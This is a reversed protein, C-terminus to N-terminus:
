GFFAAIAKQDTIVEDKQAVQEQSAWPRPIHLSKDPLGKGNSHLYAQALGWHDIREVALALM